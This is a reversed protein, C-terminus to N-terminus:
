INEGLTWGSSGRLYHAARIRGVFDGHAFYKHDSMSNAHRQSALDLDGNERLPRLGHSRRERNLLCLTADRAAGLSMANPNARANACSGDATAATPAGLAGAAVACAALVRFNRARTAAALM